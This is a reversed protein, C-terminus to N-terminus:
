KRAKRKSAKYDDGGERAWQEFEGLVAPTVQWNENWRKKGIDNALRQARARTKFVGFIVSDRNHLIYVTKM